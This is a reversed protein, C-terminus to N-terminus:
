EQPEVHQEAEYRRIFDQQRYLKRKLIVTVNNGGTESTVKKPFAKNVDYNWYFPQQRAIFVENSAGEFPGTYPMNDVQITVPPVNYTTQKGTTYAEIWLVYTSRTPNIIGGEQYEPITFPMEKGDATKLQHNGKGISVRKHEGPQLTLAKGDLVLSLAKDTPNDLYYSPGFLSCGSGIMLWIAALLLFPKM